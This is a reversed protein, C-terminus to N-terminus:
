SDPGKLCRYSSCELLWVLWVPKCFRAYANCVRQLGAIQRHGREAFQCLAHRSRDPAGATKHLATMENGDRAGVLIGNQLERQVVEANDSAAASRLRTAGVSVDVQWLQHETMAKHTLVFPRSSSDSPKAKAEATGVRDYNNM